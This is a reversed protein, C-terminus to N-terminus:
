QVATDINSTTKGEKPRIKNHPNKRGSGDLVQGRSAQAHYSPAIFFVFLSWHPYAEPLRYQSPQDETKRTILWPTTSPLKGRAKANLRSSVAPSLHIWINSFLRLVIRNRPQAWTTWLDKGFCFKIPLPLVFWVFWSIAHSSAAIRRVLLLQCWLFIRSAQSILQALSGSLRSSPANSRLSYKCKVRALLSFHCM